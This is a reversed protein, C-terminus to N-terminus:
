GPIIFTPKLSSYTRLQESLSMSGRYKIQSFHILHFASFVNRWHTTLGTKLAMRMHRCYFKLGSWESTSAIKKKLNLTSNLAFIQLYALTLELAYCGVQSAIIEGMGRGRRRTVPVDTAPQCYYSGGRSYIAFSDWRVSDPWSSCVAKM